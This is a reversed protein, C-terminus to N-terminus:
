CGRRGPKYWNLAHALLNGANHSTTTAICEGGRMVNARDGATLSDVGAVEWGAALGERAIHSGLLGALGSVFVKM